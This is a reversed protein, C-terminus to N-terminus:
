RVARYAALAVREAATLNRETVTGRGDRGDAGIAECEDQSLVYGRFPDGSGGAAAIRDALARAAATRRVMDAATVLAHTSGDGMTRTYTEHLDGCTTCTPDSTMLTQLEDDTLRVPTTADHDTM